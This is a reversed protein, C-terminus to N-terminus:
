QENLIYTASAATAPVVVPFSHEATRLVSVRLGYAAEILSPELIDDPRGMAMLRGKKLLLLRDAYQAALNLDHLVVVVTLGMFAMEKAKQLCLQQHMWDMNSTPEDLLLLKDRGIGGDELQALVRAMQVRQQEGGSLTNFLRSALHGAQMSRLCASVVSRDLEATTKRAHPYRGMQVVEEVTFPLSLSYHQTLVARQLALEGPPISHLPRGKWVVSGKSPKREGSLIRLLTSKGAGNPGLLVTLEGPHLAFHIDELLAKGKATYFHIHEATMM